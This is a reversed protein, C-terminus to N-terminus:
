SYNKLSKQLIEIIKQKVHEPELVQIKDGFSLIYGYIWDNFPLEVHILFDGNDQKIISSEDFEDYIRYALSRDILLVLKITKPKQDIQPIEKMTRDFSENTLILDKIRTLKFFRHDNKIHDFGCLYWANHKFCLQLPEIMRQSYQGYSNFYSFQIRKKNIIANKILEFNQKHEDSNGWVTFDIDFWSEDEKSFFNKMKEYVHDQDIHLKNIGQLSFLIQKQDDDTLLTKDLKYHDLLQIGGNKGQSMYIPIYLESLAEIDRYITRTSVEFYDALERATMKDKSLLLYIIGFLRNNKM